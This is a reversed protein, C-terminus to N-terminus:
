ARLYRNVADRTVGLESAIDKTPMGQAKLTKARTKRDAAAGEYEARSTRGVKKRERDRRQSEQKPLITKLKAAEDGTVELLSVLKENSYRYRADVKMGSFTVTEGRQAADLRSLVSTLCSGLETNTWTPAFERALEFMEAKFDRAIRAHALFCGALFVFTNRQGPPLGREWGRLEALLRLDGLRDWALESSILPRPNRREGSCQGGDLAVLRSLPAERDKRELEWQLRKPERELRLGALQDRSLPLVTDAFVDFDYGVVGSALVQGGLTPTRSRHLVRIVEGTRSSVSGELRLVRSADKAMPDAGLDALKANLVEQVASWRLLAAQPVPETFLWKAQLGRGSFVIVSPEPLQRDHCTRLLHEALAEPSLGKLGPQKYTDLDSFALPMRWLNVVRRNPKFFQGQSIWRDVQGSESKLLGPLAELRACQQRKGPGTRFLAVFGGRSTDHYLLPEAQWLPLEQQAASAM